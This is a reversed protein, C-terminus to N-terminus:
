GKVRPRSFVTTEHWHFSIGKPCDSHRFIGTDSDQVSPNGSLIQHFNERSFRRGDHSMATCIMMQTLSTYLGPKTWRHMKGKLLPSTDMYTEIDRAMAHIHARSMGEFLAGLADGCVLGTFSSAQLDNKM